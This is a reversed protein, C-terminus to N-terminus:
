PTPMTLSFTRQVLVAMQARTVFLEPCYLGNGCGSSIGEVGLRDAWNAAWHTSPVDPWMNTTAPPIYASGHKGRLLFIAMQARTTSDGPCFTTPTCGATIGDTRLAEIFYKAYHTATDTFTLAPTGPDFAGGHV